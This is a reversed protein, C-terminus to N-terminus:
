VLLAQRKLHNIMIERGGHHVKLPRNLGLMATVVVIAWSGEATLGPAMWM